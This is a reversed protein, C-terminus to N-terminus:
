GVCNVERVGRHQGAGTIIGHVDGDHRGYLKPRKGVGVEYKEGM